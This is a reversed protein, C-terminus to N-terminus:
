PLAPGDAASDLGSAPRARSSQREIAATSAGRAKSNPTIESSHAGLLGPLQTEPSGPPNPRGRPADSPQHADWEQMERAQSDLSSLIRRQGSVEKGTGWPGSPSVPRENFCSQPALCTLWDVEAPVHGGPAQPRGAWLCEGRATDRGAALSPEFTMHGGPWPWPPPELITLQRRGGASGPM